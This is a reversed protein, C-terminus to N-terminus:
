PARRHHNFRHPGREPGKSKDSLLDSGWLEPSASGEGPPDSSTLGVSSLDPSASGAGSPDPSGSVRKTPGSQATATSMITKSPSLSM